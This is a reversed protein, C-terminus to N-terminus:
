FITAPQVTNTINNFTNDGTITLDGVGGQNITCNYTSGGGAFTKATASTLSITGTGTGATTTFGTPALNAFTGTSSAPCVLTGANFTLNKTGAGTSFFDGTTLTKGNLNITGNNLYVYSSNSAGNYLGNIFVDDNLQWSGGVGDFTIQIDLTSGNTTINRTTGSTSAFKIQNAVLGAWYGSAGSPMTFDGYLSFNCGDPFTNLDTSFNLFHGNITPVFYTDNSARSPAFNISIANLETGGATRGHYITPTTFTGSSNATFNVTPTGTYTFNTANDVNWITSNANLTNTYTGTGFAISRTSTNNSTFIGYHTLTFNNLDLTGRTLTIARSSSTTGVSLNNLLKYTASGSFTIPVPLNVGNSNITQTGSTAAFTTVATGSSATMGSNLSLNGYITRASSVLAGSFSGFTLNKVSGTVQCSGTGGSITFSISNAETVAGAIVQKSNAGTYSLIITPTGAVSFTTAGTYMPTTGGSITIFNGSPFYLTGTFGTMYVAGVSAFNSNITVTGSGSNADFYAADSGTPYTTATTGGSLTAWKPGASITDWSDTGGVWYKSAM